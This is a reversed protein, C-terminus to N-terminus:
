KETYSISNDSLNVVIDYTKDPDAWLNSGDIKFKEASGDAGYWFVDDGEDFTGKIYFDWSGDTRSLTGKFVGEGDATLEVLLTEKDSAYVALKTPTKLVTFAIKSNALDVTMAYKNAPDVWFSHADSADDFGRAVPLNAYNAPDASWNDDCGYYVFGDKTSNVGQMYYNWANDASVDFSYTGEYLGTESSFTLITRIGAGNTGIASQKSIVLLSNVYAYNWTHNFPDFEFYADGMAGNLWLHNYEGEAIGFTYQDWGQYTAFKLGNEDTLNFNWDGGATLLGTYKGNENMKLTGSWNDSATLTNGYLVAEVRSKVLDATVYYWGNQPVELKVGYDKNDSTKIEQVGSKLNLFGKYVGTAAGDLTETVLSKGAVTVENPYVVVEAAELTFKYNSNLGLKLTLKYTGKEPITVGTGEEGLSFKVANQTGSFGVNVIEDADAQSSQYHEAKGNVTVNANDKPVIIYAYWASKTADWVMSANAVDGGCTLSSILYANALESTSKTDMTFYYCGAKATLWFHDGGAMYSMFTWGTAESTGYVVDDQTHVSFNLWATANIFGQYKGDNEPSYLYQATKAGDADYIYAWHSDIELPTVNLKVVNSYLVEESNKGLSSALRLYMVGQSNPKLGVASAAANIADGKLSKLNSGSFTQFSSFSEDASAQVEIYGGGLNTGVEGNTVTLSNETYLLNLVTESLNDEDIQVSAESLAFDTTPTLDSVTYHELDDECSTFGSMLLASVVGIYLYNKVKM